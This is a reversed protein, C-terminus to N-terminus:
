GAEKVWVQPSVSPRAVLHVAREQRYLSEASRLEEPTLETRLRDLLRYSNLVGARLTHVIVPVGADASLRAFVYSNIRNVRVGPSDYFLRALHTDAATVRRRAAYLFNDLAKQPDPRGLYGQQYLRGLRYHGPAITSSFRLSSRLNAEGLSAERPARQNFYYLEGLFLSARAVGQAVGSKLVDELNVDVLLYPFSVAVGAAETPMAGPQKLMWRLMRDALEPQANAPISAAPAAQPVPAAYQPIAGLAPASDVSEDSAEAQAQREAEHALTLEEDAEALDEPLAQEVLAVVLSSAVQPLELPDYLFADFNNAPAGRQLFAIAQTVLADLAAHNGSYRYYTALDTYCTPVSPLDRRCLELLRRANGADGITARYWNIASARSEILASAAATRALAPARRKVDLQPFGGYLDLLAASVAPEDLVTQAHLLLREAEAISAFDGKRMFMRALAIAAEPRRPLVARYLTIAADQADTSEKRSYVAALYLQADPYGRQALPALDREADDLRGALRAQNGRELDPIGRADSILSGHPSKAVIPLGRALHLGTCGVLPGWLLVSIFIVLRM